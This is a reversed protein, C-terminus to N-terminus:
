SVAYSIASDSFHNKALFDFRRQKESHSNELMRETELKHQAQLSDFSKMQSENFGLEKKLYQEMHEKRSRMKKSEPKQMLMYLTFANAVLLIAIIILLIKKQTAPNNM